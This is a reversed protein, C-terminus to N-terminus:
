PRGSAHRVRAPGPSLSRPWGPSDPLQLVSPTWSSDGTTARTACSGDAQEDHGFCRDLLHEFLDGQRDDRPPTCSNLVDGFRFGASATDYKLAAQETYLRAAADAIGRKVPKPIRRRYTATWYALAEGPEDARQLM